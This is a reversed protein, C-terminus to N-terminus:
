ATGSQGGWFGWGDVDDAGAMWGDIDDSSLSGPDGSSSSGGETMLLDTTAQHWTVIGGENM